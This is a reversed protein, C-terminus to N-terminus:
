QQQEWTYINKFKRLTNNKITNRYHYDHNVKIVLIWTHLCLIYSFFSKKESLVIVDYLQWTQRRITRSIQSCKPRQSFDLSTEITDIREVTRSIHTLFIYRIKNTHIKYLSDRISICVYLIRTFFMPVRGKCDSVVM